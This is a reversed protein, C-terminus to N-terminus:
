GEVNKPFFIAQRKVLLDTNARILHHAVLHNYYTLKKELFRSPFMQDSAESHWIPVTIHYPPSSNASNQDIIYVIAWSLMSSNANRNGISVM